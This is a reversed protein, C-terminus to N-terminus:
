LDLGELRRGMEEGAERWAAIMRDYAPDGDSDGIRHNADLWAVTRRVGDVWSVSYRFGLDARARSNDFINNFQFNVACVGAGKPAVAALLDTPIHVLEPAPAGMAEAIGQYYRNWTMWEEGTVHYPKGYAAENGVANAFAAAADDVHCAVWLSSGDGHCIIPKGRRIRDLFRTDWGMSQVLSGGEGYTMAPRIITVAFDGREHAASFVDECKVKNQGYSGLAKDRPEEETYPYRSAPKNYVDVTSTFIVQRARSRFARVVSEADEPVFCIMDIVCDFRGAARMQAEFAAYDRRDGHRQRVSGEVRLPTRGRNYLTLDAGRDLLRRTIATSILGSGGIILVRM